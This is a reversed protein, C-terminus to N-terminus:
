LSTLFNLKNQYRLEDSQSPSVDKALELYRQTKDLEGLKLYVRALGFYIEHKRRDLNLAKKFYSLAELYNGTELEREGLNVFYYPNIARKNEVDSLIKTALEPRDTSKYLYALNEWATLNNPNLNLAYQYSSEAQVLYGKLRYLLGLNVATSEFSDDALLAKRFYAYAENLKYSVLADAGKNNYYMAIVTAKSVFRKKFHNRSSLPDFDVQYGKAQFPYVNPAAKPELRLNIHGNLMSYGQKRTWYEPIEIEQFQATFGAEEALAFTMISLSLCNAAKRIFTENAVTNANGNYLLNYDARDFLAHVLAEMQELPEGTVSVARHAFQKAEDGLFFIDKEDEIAFKEFDEFGQDYMIVQDSANIKSSSQCGFVLAFVSVLICFHAARKISLM